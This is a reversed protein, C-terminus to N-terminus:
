CRYKKTQRLYDLNIGLLHAVNNPTIYYRIQEGNGLFITFNKKDIYTKKYLDICEQLNKLLEEIEFRKRITM